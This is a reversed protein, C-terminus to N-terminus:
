WDYQAWKYFIIKVNEEIVYNKEPVKALWCQIDINELNNVM